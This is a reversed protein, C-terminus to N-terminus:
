SCQSSKWLDQTWNGAVVHHSVAMQLPIQHGGRRIRRFVALNYEFVYFIYVLFYLRPAPFTSQPNLFFFLLSFMCWAKSVLYKHWQWHRVQVAYSLCCNACTQSQLSATPDFHEASDPPARALKNEPQCGIECPAQPETAPGQLHINTNWVHTEANRESLVNWIPRQKRRTNFHLFVCVCSMLVCMPQDFTM